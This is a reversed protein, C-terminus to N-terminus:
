GKCSPRDRLCTSLDVQMVKISIKTWKNAELYTLDRADVADLEEVFEDRKAGVLALVKSM